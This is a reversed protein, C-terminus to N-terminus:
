GVQRRHARARRLATRAEDAREEAADRDDELRQTEREADDLDRRVAALEEELDHRRGELDRRRQDADDLADELRELDDDAARAADRAAAEAARAEQRVHDHDHDHDDSDDGQTPRSSRPADAPDGGTARRPRGTGGHPRRPPTPEPEPEADPEPEPEPEPEADRGDIDPVAEPVAVAGDLDVPEFGVAELARVLMGSRVAAGARPDAMAAEVTAGVQELVVDSPEHGADRALDAGADTLSAVLSARERRLQSIARPDAQEQAARLAPGLDVADDLAGQAALLDVVWAAPSPKRLAKVGDSLARDRKRLDRARATREAVFDEPRRRYLERAVAALQEPDM